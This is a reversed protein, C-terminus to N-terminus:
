VRAAFAGSEVWPPVAETARVQSAWFLQGSSAPGAVFAAAGQQTGRAARLVRLQHDVPEDLQPDVDEEHDATVARNPPALPM